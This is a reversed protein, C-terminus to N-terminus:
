RNGKKFDDWTKWDIYKVAVIILILLVIVGGIIEAM